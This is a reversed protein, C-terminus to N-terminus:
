AIVRNAERRKFGVLECQGLRLVKTNYTTAGDLNDLYQIVQTILYLDIFVTHNRQSFPDSRIRAIVYAEVFAVM